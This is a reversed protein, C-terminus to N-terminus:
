VSCVMIGATIALQYLSVLKGRIEKPSVEANYVPVVMSLMGVALGSVVRGAYMVGIHIAATQLVGGIVFLGAGMIISYKRGFLESLVLPLSSITL